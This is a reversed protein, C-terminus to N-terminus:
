HGLEFWLKQLREVSVPRATGLEQAFLSIRFEELLWRYDMARKGAGDGGKHQALVQELRDKFPALQASQRKDRAPDQEARQLRVQIGKIYRALHPLQDFPTASVFGPYVLRSLQESVDTVLALWRPPISKGLKRAVDHYEALAKGVWLCVDNAVGMLQREAGLARAEFDKRARIDAVDGPFVQTIIARVLDDRLGECRGVGAFHLCMAGIGPLQKELHRVARSAVLRFLTVLGERHERRARQPDDLVRLNVVDAEVVLAPYGRMSLGHQNLEVYEPLDAFDWRRVDDRELEHAPLARFQNTARAGVEEKLVDLDRGAALTNGEVDVVRFRMILHAPLQELHWVDGPVEVGAMRELQQAVVGLLSVSRDACAETCARAYDPAPVFHRRLRKPLSRILATVKEQVLGPVLWEFVQPSLQNLAALPVVATVGDQEDGPVFHYELTLPIGAMELQDPFAGAQYEPAARQLLDERVLFLLRPTAHAAHLYWSELGAASHIGAPIRENYFDFVVQEDVLIDRRRTREEMQQLEALLAQNHAFFAARTTLEGHVLAGQIFVERALRPDIAGFNVKRRAVLVLGYLTVKEYAAVQGARKEWHPDSYHRRVLHGALTEIWQPEIKAVTRAYRRGTEILEAAVIWKPPRAFLGSGPFINLKLNRAGTFEHADSKFAVNSLLGTLLARHVSAYDAEVRNIPMGTGKVLAQLQRHIDHWERMRAASLFYERCLKRLKSHSLQRAQAHYFSWLKFLALFDSREDRFRRQKEDAAQAQDFPRERPDQVALASVIVLVEALCDEENAALLMRALRVDLPFRALRRGVDALRHRDDIAGLEHLLKFGDRIFRADPPQLFPFDRIDGLRLVLMQLIVAALSTRLIEPDTFLPRRLYDEVSYLRICIGPATRGCRGARQNASAQSIPEVPLRQVKTRYSYRSIRAVGTDVVYRIGPVTLSTEAVNTALVIRRGGHPEFVRQQQAASLRGYLPLIETHPPHHKRLSEAADRIEREGALFVLVDGAGERALEDIADLLAQQRDRDRTEEDGEAVPRYRVEVPWSRGSVEVIPANDFHAAFREPDITASTIILKLEPREPLLRKLYGLLFDVNLSREHAEDIILTDYARLAPDSQTEALLIGDTMIKIYTEPRTRDSFRMKYGVAHGVQTRLESAVRTALSRAAIRRPQTHGIMGAVGRGLELCIKPLQTTKGSGTEGCLIVVQNARIANRIEGRRQVVPLADPFTPEPRNVRRLELRERAVDLDHALAELGQDVSQGRRLRAKLGGLRRRFAHQDVLLVQTIKRSLSDLDPHRPM